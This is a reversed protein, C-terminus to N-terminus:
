SFLANAPPRAKSPNSSLRKVGDNQLRRVGTM